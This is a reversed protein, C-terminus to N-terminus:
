MSGVRRQCLDVFTTGMRREERPQFNNRNNGLSNSWLDGRFLLIGFACNCHRISVNERIASLDHVRSSSKMRKAVSHGERSVISETDSHTELLTSRLQVLKSTQVCRTVQFIKKRLYFSSPKKLHDFNSMQFNFHFLRWLNGQVPTRFFMLIGCKLVRHQTEELMECHTEGSSTLDVGSSQAKLTQPRHLM